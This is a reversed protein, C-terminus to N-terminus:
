NQSETKNLDKTEKEFEEKEKQEDHDPTENHEYKFFKM